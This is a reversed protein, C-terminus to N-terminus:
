MSSVSYCCVVCVTVYCWTVKKAAAQASKTPSATKAPIGSKSPAVPKVSASIRAAATNKNHQTKGTM